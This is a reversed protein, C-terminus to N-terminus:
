DNLVEELIERETRFKLIKSAKTNDLVCNSRGTAIPIESIPVYKWNPNDRNYKKMIDVVDSTSLPEPNVINYIEHSSIGKIFIQHILENTFECLDPIYTKSNKYDILSDYKKIKSLYSRADHLSSIPMRIRLINIPLHSSGIEFAHKSKSYFSSENEYLGFNPLDDEAFDKSYGTYICGSGIHIYKKGISTTLEACQLPSTVNLRWCEEKKSEAEDINPRGTFGSCNIVVDPEFNFNLEYWFTKRDHYDVTKSDITKVIHGQSSLFNNLHNGIYGNGLILIKRKIINRKLLNKSIM